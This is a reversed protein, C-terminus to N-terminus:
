EGTIVSHNFKEDRHSALLDYEDTFYREADEVTKANTPFVMTYYAETDHSFVAQRRGADAPLVNYGHLRVTGNGVYASIEGHTILLTPIKILVGTILTYPPTILTRAYMGAHLVHNTYYQGQPHKLLERELDRVKQISPADMAPIHQHAVILAGDM